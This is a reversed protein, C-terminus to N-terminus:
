RSMSVSSLSFLYLFVNCMCSHSLASGDCLSRGWQVDRQRSGGAVLWVSIGSPDFFDGM